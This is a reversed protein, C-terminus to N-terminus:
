DRDTAGYHLSRTRQSNIVLEADPVPAPGEYPMFFDEFQVTGKEDALKCRDMNAGADIWCELWDGHTSLKFPVVGVELFAGRSSINGPRKPLRSGWWMLFLFTVVAIAVAGLIKTVVTSMKNESM